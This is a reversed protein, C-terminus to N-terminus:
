EKIFKDFVAEDLDRFDCQDILMSVFKDIRDIYSKFWDRRCIIIKDYEICSANGTLGLINLAMEQIDSLRKRFKKIATYVTSKAYGMRVIDSPSYGKIYLKIIEESVGM